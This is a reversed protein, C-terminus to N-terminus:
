KEKHHNVDFVRSINFGFHIGGKNWKDTTRGIFDKEIMGQSNTIILQFVHGGTEIDVGISFPNYIKSSMSAPKYVYFYEANVSLRSTLKYRTGFGCAFMDNPDVETAVLNYHIHSPSMQFSFNNNFKRAVLLQNVYSIRTSYPYKSNNAPYDQTRDAISTFWSISVPMNVSGTSQRWLSLKTFADYTKESTGRGAGFMLWNNIGYELSFHTTAGDIGWFNYPGDNIAGFRHHIRFDLQGQPMREISQGNMIRTAKFTATTYDIPEQVQSNLINELDDQASITGSILLLATIIKLFKM